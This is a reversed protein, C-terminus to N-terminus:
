ARTAAQSALSTNGLVTEIAAASRLGGLAQANDMLYACQYTPTAWTLGDSQQTSAIAGLAGAVGASVSQLASLDHTASYTDWVAALYTGAYADTSDYHGTSTWDVGNQSSYDTVYGTGPQEVSQYWRLYDWSHEAYVPDGTVQTARALGMAAFNSLYPWVLRLTPRDPWVAIAGNGAQASLIWTAQEAITSTQSSAAAATGPDALAGAVPVAAIGLALALGGLPRGFRWSKRFQM